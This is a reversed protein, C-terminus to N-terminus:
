IRRGPHYAVITCAIKTFGDAGMKALAEPLRILM